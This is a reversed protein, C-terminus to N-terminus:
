EKQRKDSAWPQKFTPTQLFSVLLYFPYFFITMTALFSFVPLDGVTETPGPFLQAFHFYYVTILDLILAGGGRTVMKDGLGMALSDQSRRSLVSVSVGYLFSFFLSGKLCSVTVTDQNHFRNEETKGSNLYVVIWVMLIVSIAAFLACLVKYWTRSAVRDLAKSVRWRLEEGKILANGLM